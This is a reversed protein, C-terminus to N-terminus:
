DGLELQIMDIMEHMFVYTKEALESYCGNQTTYAYRMNCVMETLDILKDRYQQLDDRSLQEMYTVAEYTLVHFGLAVVKKLVELSEITDSFLLLNPVHTRPKGISIVASTSEYSVPIVQGIQENIYM